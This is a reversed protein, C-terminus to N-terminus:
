GLRILRWEEDRCKAGKAFFEATGIGGRVVYATDPLRERDTPPVQSETCLEVAPFEIAPNRRWWARPIRAVSKKVTSVM